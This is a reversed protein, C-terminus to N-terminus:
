GHNHGFVGFVIHGHFEFACADFEGFFIEHLGEGGLPVNGNWMIMSIPCKETITAKTSDTKPIALAANARFVRLGSQARDPRMATVNIKARSLMPM